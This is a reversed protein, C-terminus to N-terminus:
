KRSAVVHASPNDLPDVMLQSVKHLTLSNTLPRSTSIASVPNRPSFYLTIVKRQLKWRDGHHTIAVNEGRLAVRVQKDDLKDTFVDGTENLLNYLAVRDNLVVM